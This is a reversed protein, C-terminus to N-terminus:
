VNCHAAPLLIVNLAKPTDSFLMVEAANDVPTQYKRTPLNTGDTLTSKHTLKVLDELVVLMTAERFLEADGNLIPLLVLPPAESRSPRTESQKKHAM